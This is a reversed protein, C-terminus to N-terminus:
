VCKTILISILCKEAYLVVDYARGAVSVKRLLM